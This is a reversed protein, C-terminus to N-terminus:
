FADKMLKDAELTTRSGLRELSELAAIIDLERRYVMKVEHTGKKIESDIECVYLNRRKVVQLARDITPDDVHEPCDPQLDAFPTVAVRRSSRLNGAAWITAADQYIGAAKLWLAIIESEIQRQSTVSEAVYVLEESAHGLCDAGFLPGNGAM